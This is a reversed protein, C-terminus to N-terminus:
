TLPPCVKVLRVIRIVRTMWLLAPVQIKIAMLFVEIYYPVIAVMDVVNFADLWFEWPGKPFSWVRAALKFLPSPSNNSTFQLDSQLPLRATKAAM